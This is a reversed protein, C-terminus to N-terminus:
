SRLCPRSCLKRSSPASVTSTLAGPTLSEPLKVLLWGLHCEGHHKSFLSLSTVWKLRRILGPM